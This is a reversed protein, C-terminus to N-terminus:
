GGPAGFDIYDIRMRLRHPIMSAKSQETQRYSVRRGSKSGRDRERCAHSFFANLGKDSYSSKQRGKRGTQADDVAGLLVLWRVGKRASAHAPNPVGKVEQAHTNKTKKTRVLRAM